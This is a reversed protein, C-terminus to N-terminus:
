GGGNWCVTLTTDIDVAGAAGWSAPMPTTTFVTDIAVKAKGGGNWCITLAADVDVAGAAGWSAPVPTTTSGMYTNM